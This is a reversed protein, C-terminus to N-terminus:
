FVSAIIWLIKIKTIHSVIVYIKFQVNWSSSWTPNSIAPLRGVRAQWSCAQLNFHVEILFPHLLLFFVSYIGCGFRESDARAKSGREAPQHTCSPPSRWWTPIISRKAKRGKNPTALPAPWWPKLFHLIWFFHFVRNRHQQRHSAVLLAFSQSSEGWSLYSLEWSRLDTAFYTWREYVFIWSFLVCTTENGQMWTKPM